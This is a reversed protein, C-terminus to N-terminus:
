EKVKYTELAANTEEIYSYLFEDFTMKAERVQYNLPTAWVNIWTTDPMYWWDGARGTSLSDIIVEPNDAMYNEKMLEQDVARLSPHGNKALVAQGESAVWNVFKAAAEKVQSKGNVCIMDLNSFGAEAGQREITDCDPNQPETYVKYRPLPACGWEDTMSKRLTPMHYTQEELMAMKGSTFYAISSGSNAYVASTPCVNLGGQGALSCFRQFAERIRPLETLTGDAIEGSFDHYSAASGNVTYRFYTKNDTEYSITDEPKADIIDKVDLTEGAQYVTGTYAGTFTKGEGVIYNPNEGALSFTWDGKGSLDEICDGGVSWGYSFWWETFYGYQTYSNPNRDKTCILGLDEVEDWNMAISDNFVLKEGVAPAKWSSGDREDAAPVFPTESRYFGKAPLDFDIGYDAKTMGNKDKATGANFAELNEEDVSICTIGNEQFATKNYYLIVADEYAPVGYLPDDANSTTTATNYHCRYLSQPYVGDLTEQDIQGTLDEMYRTYKKFYNDRVIFVDSGSNSPLQQALVDTTSATKPIGKVKVGLEPGVTSNFEDVLIKFAEIRSLDGSYMFDVTVLGHGGEGDESGGCAMMSVGMLAALTASLFRKWLNKKKAM